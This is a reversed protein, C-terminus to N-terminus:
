CVQILLHTAPSSTDTTGVKRAAAERREEAALDEGRQAVARVMLGLVAEVQSGFMRYSILSHFHTRAPYRSNPLIHM